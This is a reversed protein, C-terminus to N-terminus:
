GNKRAADLAVEIKNVGLLSLIKEEYEPMLPTSINQGKLSILYSIGDKGTSGSKQKASEIALKALKEPTPADINAGVKTYLVTEIGGLNDIVGAVVQNVTPNSPTTYHKDSKENRTERRWLFDKASEMKVHKKLVLIVAKVPAGGIEVPVVTPADDRLSSKRAFEINFPTEIDRIKESILPKLEVGPDEILSGYALIGIRNM